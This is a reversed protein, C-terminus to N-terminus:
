QKGMIKELLQSIELLQNFEQPTLLQLNNSHIFPHNFPKGALLYPPKFDKEKDSAFAITPQTFKQVKRYHSYHLSQFIYDVFHKQYISAFVDDLNFRIIRWEIQEPRLLNDVNAYIFYPGNARLHQANSEVEFVERVRQLSNTNGVFVSHSYHKMLEGRSIGYGSM